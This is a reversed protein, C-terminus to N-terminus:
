IFLRPRQRARIAVVPLTVPDLQNRHAREGDVLALEDVSRLTQIHLMNSVVNRRVARGDIEGFAVRQMVDSIIQLRQDGSREGRATMVAIPQTLARLGARGEGSCQVPKRRVREARARVVFENMRSHGEIGDARINTCPSSRSPRSSAVAETFHSNYPESPAVPLPWPVSRPTISPKM